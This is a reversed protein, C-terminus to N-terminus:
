QPQEGRAEPDDPEEDQQAPQEEPEPEPDYMEMTYATVDRLEQDSLAARFAPMGASLGLARGGVRTVLYARQEEMPVATFDTPPPQMGVGSPGDGEGEAGHCTTCREEYVAAGADPDGDLEFDEVFQPDPPADELDGLPPLECGTMALALVVVAPAVRM